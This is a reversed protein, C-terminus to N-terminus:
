ISTSCNKVEISKKDGGSTLKIKCFRPRYPVRFIFSGGKDSRRKYNGDLVIIQFSRSTHGLVTLVGNAYRAEDIRIEAGATSSFLLLGGILFIKNLRM